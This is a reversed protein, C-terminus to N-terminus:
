ESKVCKAGFLKFVNRAAVITVNRGRLQGNLRGAAILDDKEQQLLSLKILNLNSRFFTLSDRFGTARAADVSMLYVKHPNSRLTSTFPSCKWM